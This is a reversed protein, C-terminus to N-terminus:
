GFNMRQPMRGGPRHRLPNGERRVAFQDINRVGRSSQYRYKIGLSEFFDSADWHPFHRLSYLSQNQMLVTPRSVSYSFIRIIASCVATEGSASCTPEEAGAESTPRRALCRM